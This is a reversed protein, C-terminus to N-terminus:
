GRTKRKLDDFFREFKRAVVEHSFNEIMHKRAAQGYRRRLNEDKGLELMMDKLDDARYPRHLLLGTEKHKVVEDMSGSLTTIVPLEMLSAEMTAYGLQDEWGKYPLSPYVFVDSISMLERVEDHSVWPYRFVVDRLGHKDILAEIEKEYEGTGTIILRATPLEKLVGPFAEIILHIGKRYSLSGIFSFVINGEFNAERFKKPISLKHFFEGNVGSLPIVPHLKYTYSGIIAAAKHNGCIVVESLLINSKLVLEKLWLNFGKFKSRYHINEWTFIIHRLGFIKAWIGEWLTSLLLPEMASFLVNIELSRKKFLFWPLFLLWGKFAGGVVPFQSHSFFVQSTFTRSDETPRYVYKGGKIPWAKPLLFYIREPGKYYDFVESINKRVFAFGTILINM